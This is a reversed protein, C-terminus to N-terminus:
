KNVGSQSRNKLYYLIGDTEFYKVNSKKKVDVEVM